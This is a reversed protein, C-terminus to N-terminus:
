CSGSPMEASSPVTKMPETSEPPAKQKRCIEKPVPTKRRVLFFSEGKRQKQTDATRITKLAERNGYVPLPAETTFVRLDDLGLIHDAHGHTYLVADVHTLKERLAQLRFETPTDILWNRGDINLLAGCRTRKNKPNESRCVACRCGITPIGHSTGTGMFTLKM